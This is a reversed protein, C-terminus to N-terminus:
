NSPANESKDSRVLELRDKYKKFYMKRISGNYDNPNVSMDIIIGYCDKYPISFTKSCHNGSNSCIRVSKRITDLETYPIKMGSNYTNNNANMYFEYTTNGNSDVIDPLYDNCNKIPLIRVSLPKEYPYRNTM